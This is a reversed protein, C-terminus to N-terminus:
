IAHPATGTASAMQGDLDRNLKAVRAAEPIQAMKLYKPSIVSGENSRSDAKPSVNGPYNIL